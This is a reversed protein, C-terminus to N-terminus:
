SRCATGSCAVATDGPKSIRASFVGSPPMFPTKTERPSELLSISFPFVYSTVRSGCPFITLAVRSGRPLPKSRMM